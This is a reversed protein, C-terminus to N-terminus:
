AAAGARAGPTEGNAVQEWAQRLEALLTAVTRLAGADKHLMAQLIHRKCFLYISRLRQPLEGYSMDLSFNLEDIIADVRRVKAHAVEVDGGEVAVAAQTLFRIASDYLMVVLREPPATLISQTTYAAQADAYASM